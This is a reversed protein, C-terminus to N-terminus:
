SPHRKQGALAELALEGALKFLADALVQETSLGAREAIRRYFRETSPDLVIMYGPM